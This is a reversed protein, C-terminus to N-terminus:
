SIADLAKSFDIYPHLNLTLDAEQLLCHSKKGNCTKGSLWDTEDGSECFDFFLDIVIEKLETTFLLM